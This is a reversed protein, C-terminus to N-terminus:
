KELYKIVDDFTRFNALAEDEIEIEYRDEVDMVVEVLDLSDIGLDDQLRTEANIKAPDISLKECIISKVEEHKSM